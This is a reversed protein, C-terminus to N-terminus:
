TPLHTPPWTTIRIPDCSPKETPITVFRCDTPYQLIWLNSYEYDFGSRSQGSWDNRAMEGPSLCKISIQSDCPIFEFDEVSDEEWRKLLVLDMFSQINKVCQGSYTWHQAKCFDFQKWFRESATGWNQTPFVQLKKQSIEWAPSQEPTLLCLKYRLGRGVLWGLFWCWYYKKELGVEQTTIGIKTGDDHWLMSFCAVLTSTEKTRSSSNSAKAPPTM